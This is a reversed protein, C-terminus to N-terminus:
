FSFLFFFDNFFLCTFLIFHFLVNPAVYIPLQKTCLSPDQVKSLFSQTELGAQANGLEKTKINRLMSDEDGFSPCGLERICNSHPYSFFCTSGPWIAWNTLDDDPYGLNHTWDKTLACVLLLWYIGVYTFCCIEGGEREWNIIFFFLNTTWLECWKVCFTGLLQYTLIKNNPPIGICLIERYWVM